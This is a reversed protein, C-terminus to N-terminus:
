NLDSDCFKDLKAIRKEMKQVSSASEGVLRAFRTQVDDVGREVKELKDLFENHRREEKDAAEVDLLNDKILLQKGLELMKNKGEPYEKLADWLDEKSLCFLDSYGISRVNATRRNGSKIGVINLISIEGFVSGEGLTAFVVDGADSVVELCGRKVIYLEKGIDGKRCIYDGPSFVQLKFSHKSSGVCVIVAVSVM